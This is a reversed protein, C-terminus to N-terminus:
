TIELQINDVHHTITGGTTAASVKVQFLYKGTKAGSDVTVVLDYVAHLKQHQDITSSVLRLEWSTKEPLGNVTIKFGTPTTFGDYIDLTFTYTGDHDRQIKVYTPTVDIEFDTVTLVLTTSRIVQVSSVGPPSYVADIEVEDQSILQANDLAKIELIAPNPPVVQTSVPRIQVGM